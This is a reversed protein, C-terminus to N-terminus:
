CGSCQLLLVLATPSHVSYVLQEKDELTQLVFTQRCCVFLSLLRSNSVKEFIYNKIVAEHSKM